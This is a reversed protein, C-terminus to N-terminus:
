KRKYRITYPVATLTESAFYLQQQPGTMNHIKKIDTQKKTHQNKKGAHM